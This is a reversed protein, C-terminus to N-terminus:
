PISAKTILEVARELVEDRGERIGKLTPKVELDPVIGVRQTERGDPYYVGLGSIRTNVNGPLVIASVNGDAGATTSGVVTVGPVAQLAMATYESQSQSLENVLVVVKGAYAPGRGPVVQLPAALKFVGPYTFQPESFRVFDAPQALLYKTLAFVVFDSPYNRIDIILGKTAQADQMIAPLEKNRITGLTLHGINGPLKHWAPAKPDPTGNNLALNLQGAPYRTITFPLERGARQVVLQLQPTRGRLLERAINRLRTVENSAPTLPRRQAILEAVPRGDVSVVVDGKLLGTAPGLSPDYYETVVAQGEVFRIQVPAFYSGWYASLVPDNPLIYAHTDNIRTVLSLVALRYQEATRAAVFRPLFEPLVRQWDEEIAYRYPFFYAIMNWYRYLALLRLGDDPLNGPVQAYANEHQFLPNGAYPAAAVYYHPGQNRHARLYTLQQSLAPTVQRKDTLWALDPQLRTSDAAPEQCAACAPIPGLSTLWASLLQSRAKLSASALVQPLLRLLCADLNHEGAAVAPHYYKAFGWVRGLVALNEVQQKSLKGLSIGSARSFSTDQEAKYHKVPRLAAQALPKDDVTVELQDVWMTGTAPLTGGLLIEQVEPALPLSITYRKWDTTGQVNQLHMNDFAVAKGQGDNLRLWIGATGNLVNRTKLYGHLQVTKGQFYVPLQVTAVGYTGEQRPTAVSQIRLSYRGQYKVVSDVTVQYGNDAPARWGSPQHTKNNLQEFDLGPAPVAQQAQATLSTVLLPVLWFYCLKM